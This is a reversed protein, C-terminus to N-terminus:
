RKQSAKSANARCKEHASRVTATFKILNCVCLYNRVDSQLSSRRRGPSGIGGCLETM